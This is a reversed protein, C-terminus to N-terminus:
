NILHTGNNQQGKTQPLCENEIPFTAHYGNGQIKSGTKNGDHIPESPLKICTNIFSLGQVEFAKITCKKKFMHIM